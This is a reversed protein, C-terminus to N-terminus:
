TLHRRRSFVSGRRATRQTLKINFPLPTVGATVVLAVVLTTTTADLGGGIFIVDSTM